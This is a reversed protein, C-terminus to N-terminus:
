FSARRRRAASRLVLAGVCALLASSPEPVAASLEWQGAGSTFGTATRTVLLDITHDGAALFLDISRGSFLQGTAEDSPTFESWNVQSGDVLLAVEDGAVPLDFAAFLSITTDQTLLLELTPDSDGPVGFEVTDGVGEDWFFFGSGGTIPDVVLAHAPGAVFLALLAAAAVHLRVM